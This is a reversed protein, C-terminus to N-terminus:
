RPHPALASPYPALRQRRCRTREQDPALRESLKLDSAIATYSTYLTESQDANVWFVVRYERTYQYAYDFAIQTKGM